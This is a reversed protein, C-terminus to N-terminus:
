PAESLFWAEFGADKLRLMTDMSDGGSALYVIFVELGDDTSKKKLLPEFGASKLRKMMADANDMARFAGTQYYGTAAASYIDDKVQPETLAKGPSSETLTELEGKQISLLILSMFPMLGEHGNGPYRARLLALYAEKENPPSLEAALLLADAEYRPDATWIVSMARQLAGETDGKLCYAWALLLELRPRDARANRQAENALSITREANGSYLASSAANSLANLFFSDSHRAANEWAMSASAWQKEMELISALHSYLSAADEGRALPALAHLIRLAEDTNYAEEVADLVLTSFNIDSALKALTPVPDDVPWALGVQLIM